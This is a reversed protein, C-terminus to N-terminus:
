FKYSVGLNYLAEDEDFGFDTALSEVSGAVSWKKNIHYRGSLELTDSDDVEAVETNYQVRGEWKKGDYIAAVYENTVGATELAGDNDTVGAGIYRLGAAVGWNNSISKVGGLELIQGTTGDKELYTASYEVPGNRGEVGINVIEEELATSAGLTVYNQDDLGKDMMMMDDAFAATTTLLVAAITQKIM